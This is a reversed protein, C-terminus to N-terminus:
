DRATSEAADRFELLLDHNFLSLPEWLHEATDKVCVSRGCLEAIRVKAKNEGVKEGVRLYIRRM